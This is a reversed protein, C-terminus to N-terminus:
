EVIYVRAEKATMKPYAQEKNEEHSQAAKRVREKVQKPTEKTYVALETAMLDEECHYGIVHLALRKRVSDQKAKMKTRTEERRAKIYAGASIVATIIGAISAIITVTLEM